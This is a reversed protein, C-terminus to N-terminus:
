TAASKEFWRELVPVMHEASQYGSTVLVYDDGQGTGAIVTPFGRVGASSSIEFDSLTEAKAAEAAFEARFADEDFGLKAALAALMDTDTVDRNEAYFAEHVRRLAALGTKM